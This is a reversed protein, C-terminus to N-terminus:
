PTARLARRQEINRERRCDHCRDSAPGRLGATFASGCDVCDRERPGIRRAENYAEVWERNNARWERNAEAHCRRCWSEVGGERLHFSELALWKQCRCCWSEDARSRVFIVGLFGVALNRRTNRERFAPWPDNQVGKRRRPIGGGKPDKTARSPSHSHELVM